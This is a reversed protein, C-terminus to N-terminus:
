RSREARALRGLLPLLERYFRADGFVISLGGAFLPVLERLPKLGAQPVTGGFGAVGGSAAGNFANCAPCNIGIPEMPECVLIPGAAAAAQAFRRRTFSM